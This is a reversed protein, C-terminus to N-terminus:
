GPVSWWGSTGPRASRAAASRPRPGCCPRRARSRGASRRRPTRTRPGARCSTSSRPCCTRGRGPGPTGGRGPVVRARGRSCSSRGCSPHTRCGPSCSSARHPRAAARTCGSRRGV